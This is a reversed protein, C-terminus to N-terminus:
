LLRKTTTGAQHMRGETGRLDLNLLRAYEEKTEKIERLLFCFAETHNFGTRNYFDHIDSFQFYDLTGDEHFILDHNAALAHKLTEHERQGNM